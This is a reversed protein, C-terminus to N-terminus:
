IRYSNPVPNVRPRLTEVLNDLARVINPYEGGTRVAVLRPVITKVRSTTLASRLKAVANIVRDMNDHTPDRGCYLDLVLLFEGFEAEVRSPFHSRNGRWWMPTVGPEDAQWNSFDAM